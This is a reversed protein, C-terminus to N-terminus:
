FIYQFGEFLLSMLFFFLLKNGLFWKKFLVGAYIGLPVFIVLNLIIEGFDAKGNSILTEGFPILNASRNTMYSFQVGFKLLLIWFLLLLYIIFLTLTLQNANSSRKKNIGFYKERTM